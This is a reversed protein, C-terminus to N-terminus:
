VDQNIEKHQDKFVSREQLSEQLNETKSESGEASRLLELRTHSFILVFTERILTVNNMYHGDIKGDAWEIKQFIEKSIFKSFISSWRQGSVKLEFEVLHIVENKELTSTVTMYEVNKVLSSEQLKEGMFNFLDIGFGLSQPIQTLEDKEAVITVNCVGEEFCRRVKNEYDQSKSSAEIEKIKDKADKLDIKSEIVKLFEGIQVEEKERQVQLTHIASSTSNKIFKIVPRVAKGANAFLKNGSPKVPAQPAAEPQASLDHSSEVLPDIVSTNLDPNSM